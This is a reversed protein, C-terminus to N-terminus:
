PATLYQSHHCVWGEKELIVKREYDKLYMPKVAKKSTSPEDDDRTSAESLLLHLDRIWFLNGWLCQLCCWYCLYSCKLWRLLVQCRDWLDKPREEEATVFNQLLRERNWPGTGSLASSLQVVQQLLKLHSLTIYQHSHPSLLPPPALWKVTMLAPSPRSPAARMLETEMDTRWQVVVCPVCM